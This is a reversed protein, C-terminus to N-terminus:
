RCPLSSSAQDTRERDRRERRRWYWSFAAYVIIAYAWGMLIDLVFHDATYVLTFAMALAYAVLLIRWRGADRWFFLMVVLLTIWWPLRAAHPATVLALSGLLWGVHRLHFRELAHNM